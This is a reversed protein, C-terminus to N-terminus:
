LYDVIPADEVDVTLIPHLVCASTFVIYPSDAIRDRFIADIPLLGLEAEHFVAAAFLVVDDTEHGIPYQSPGRGLMAQNQM